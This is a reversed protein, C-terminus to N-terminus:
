LLVVNSSPSTGFFAGFQTLGIKYPRIRIFLSLSTLKKGKWAMLSNIVSSYRSYTIRETSSAQSVSGSSYLVLMSRLMLFDTGIGPNRLLALAGAWSLTLGAISENWFFGARTM